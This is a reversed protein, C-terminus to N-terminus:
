PPPLSQLPNYLRNGDCAPLEEPLATLARRMQRQLSRVTAKRVAEELVQVTGEDSRRLWGLSAM